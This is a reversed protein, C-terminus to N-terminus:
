PLAEEILRQFEARRQEYTPFRQKVEPRLERLTRALDAHRPGILGAVDDRIRQALAPSAGSTSVAVAIPGERHVAPLIFSCLEPTDAVNCLLSRASADEFVARNTEPDPTAAIVLFCDDLDRTEYRRPLWRVSLEKLEPDANPAVVVVDAGCDLLGRAKEVGVEGAGVVLCRRGELDLCAVYFRKDDTM